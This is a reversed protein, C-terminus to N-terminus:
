KRKIADWCAEIVQPILDDDLTFFGLNHDRAMAMIPGFSQACLIVIPLDKMEGKSVGDIFVELIENDKSEEGFIKERRHEVGYPSNFFQELYKFHIPNDILYRLLSNGLHLFRERVSQDKVTENWLTEHLKLEVEKFLGEILADKSEYYRYITGAGVKAREAIMAMSTGHFGHEAILDLAARAIEERKGMKTM